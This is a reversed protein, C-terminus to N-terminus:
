PLKASSFADREVIHGVVHDVVRLKVGARQANDVSERSVERLEFSHIVIVVGTLLPADRGVAVRRIRSHEAFTLDPRLLM